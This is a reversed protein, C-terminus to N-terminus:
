LTGIFSCFEGYSLPLLRKEDLSGNTYELLSDFATSILLHFLNLETCEMSDLTLKLSLNCQINEVYNSCHSGLLYDIVEQQNGFHSGTCLEDITKVDWDAQVQLAAPRAPLRSPAGFGPPRGLGRGRHSSRGREKNSSDNMVVVEEGMQQLDVEVELQDQIAAILPV